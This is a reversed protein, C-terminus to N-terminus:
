PETLIDGKLKKVKAKTRMSIEKDTEDMIEGVLQCLREQKARGFSKRPKFIRQVFFGRHRFAFSFWSFNYFNINDYYDALPETGWSV